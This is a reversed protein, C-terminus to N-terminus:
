FHSTSSSCNLDKLKGEKLDLYWLLLALTELLQLFRPLWRLLFLNPSPHASILLRLVHCLPLCSPTQLQLHILFPFPPLYSHRQPQLPHSLLPQPPCTSGQSTLVAELLVSQSQQTAHKFHSHSLWLNKRRLSILLVNNLPPKPYKSNLPRGYIFWASSIGLVGSLPCQVELSDKTFHQCKQLYLSCEHWVSPTYQWSSLLRISHSNSM